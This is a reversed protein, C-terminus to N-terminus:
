QRISSSVMQDRRLRASDLLIKFVRSKGSIERALEDWSRVLARQVDTPLPAIRAGRNSMREVALRNNALSASHQARINDSCAQRINQQGTPGLSKSFRTAIFLDIIAGQAVSGPYYINPAIKQFGRKELRDPDTWYVADIMGRELAPYIEATSLRQLVAGTKGFIQGDVGRIRFKLGNFDSVTRIPKRSILDAYRGIVGCPVAVVGYGALFGEIVAAVDSQNRWAAHTMAEFGFPIGSLLRFAPDKSAFLEGAGWAMEVAGNSVTDFADNAQFVQIDVRGRAIEDLRKIFADEGAEPSYSSIMRARVFPASLQDNSPLPSPTPPAPAPPTPTPPEPVPSAAQSISAPTAAGVGSPPKLYIQEKALSGYVFPQQGRGTATMVEERVTRFLNSIELGPTEINKLLSTTFPSNRGSGDNATTGERAAYAVLINDAPEVRAFGREVARTLSSRAMKTLFPNNRCADLIVLGLKGSNSVARTLAQLGITENPSM